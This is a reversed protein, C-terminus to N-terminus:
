ATPSDGTKLPQAPAAGAGRFYDSSKKTFLFYTLTGFLVTHVALQVPSHFVSLIEHFVMWAVVLWRASNRGSLMFAGGVIAAAHVIHVFAHEFPRQAELEAIHQAKVPDTSPMLGHILTAVGVVIFLWSIITVSLPRKNM